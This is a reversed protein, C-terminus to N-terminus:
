EDAPRCILVVLDEEISPLKRLESVNLHTGTLNTPFVFMHRGCDPRKAEIRVLARVIREELQGM